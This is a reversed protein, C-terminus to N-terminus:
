QVRAFHNAELLAVIEGTEAQAAVVDYDFLRANIFDLRVALERRVSQAQRPTVPKGARLAALISSSKKSWSNTPLASRTKTDM